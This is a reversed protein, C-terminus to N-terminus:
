ILAEFRRKEQRAQTPPARSLKAIIIVTKSPNKPLNNNFHQWSLTRKTSHPNQQQLLPTTM